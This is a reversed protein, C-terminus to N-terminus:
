RWLVYLINIGVFGLPVLINLFCLYFYFYVMYFFHQYLVSSLLFILSCTILEWIQFWTAEEDDAVVSVPQRKAKELAARSWKFKVEGEYPKLKDHHVVKWKQKMERQIAYDLDSLKMVVLYPGEYPLYLKPNEGIKRKEALYWM